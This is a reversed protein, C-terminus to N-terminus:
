MGHDLVTWVALAILAGGALLRLWLQRALAQLAGVGLGVAMLAPLTGLGFGAM